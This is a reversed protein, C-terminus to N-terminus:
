RLTRHASHTRLGSHRRCGRASDRQRSRAGSGSRTGNQGRNGAARVQQVAGHPRARWCCAAYAAQAISVRLPGTASLDNPVRAGVGEGVQSVRWEFDRSDSCRGTPRLVRAASGRFLSRLFCSDRECGNEPSRQISRQTRNLRLWPAIIKLGCDSGGPHASEKPYMLAFRVALMGGTSHGLVVAKTVHLTDLLHATNPLCNFATAFTPSQLSGGASRIPAIVSYGAVCTAWSRAM